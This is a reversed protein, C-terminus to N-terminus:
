VKKKTLPNQDKALLMLMNNAKNCEVSPIQGWEWTALQTAWLRLLWTKKREEEEQLDLVTSTFVNALMEKIIVDYQLQVM